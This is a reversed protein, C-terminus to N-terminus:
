KGLWHATPSSISAYSVTFKKMKSHTQIHQLYSLQVDSPETWRDMKYMYSKGNALKDAIMTQRFVYSGYPKTSHNKAREMDIKSLFPILNLPINKDSHETKLAVIVDDFDVFATYEAVGKMRYM